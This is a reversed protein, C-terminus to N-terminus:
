TNLWRLFKGLLTKPIPRQEDIEFSTQDMQIKDKRKPQRSKNQHLKQQYYAERQVKRQKKEKEKRQEEQRAEYEEKNKKARLRRKEGEEDSLKRRQHRSDIDTKPTKEQRESKDVTKSKPQVLEIKGVVKLGALVKKPAKILTIKSLDISTEESELLELLQDTEIAEEKNLDPIIAEQSPLDLESQAVEVPGEIDSAVIKQEIKESTAEPSAEIDKKSVDLLHEFRNAVLTKTQESLKTNPHLADLTPEIDNLYSIIEKIPVDYRRAVQGIRM